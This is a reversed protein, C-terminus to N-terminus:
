VEQPDFGDVVFGNAYFWPVIIEYVPVEAIDYQVDYVLAGGDKHILVDGNILDGAAVPGDVSLLVETETCLLKGRDTNIQMIPQVSQMTKVVEQEGCLTSVMDGVKVDQINVDGNATAIKTNAPFCFAIGAGTGLAGWLGSNNTSTSSSQQGTGAKLYDSFTSGVPTYSGTALSLLDKANSGAASQFGAAYNYPNAASSAMNNYLGSQTNVGQGYNSAQQGLGSLQAGYANNATNMIDSYSNLAATNGATAADSSWQKGVSSNIIGNNALGQFSNNYPTMANKVANQMVAQQNASLNGNVLGSYNNNLNSYNNDLSSYKSAAQGALANIGANAANIQNLGSGYMSNYDPTISTGVQAGGTQALNQLIPSLVRLYDRNIEEIEKGTETLQTAGNVPYSNSVTTSGFRQLDFNFM